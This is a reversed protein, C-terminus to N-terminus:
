LRRRIHPSPNTYGLGIHSQSFKEISSVRRSIKKESKRMRLVEDDVDEEKKEEEKEEDEKTPITVSPAEEDYNVDSIEKKNKDPSISGVKADGEFCIVLLEVFAASVYMLHASVMMQAIGPGFVDYHDEKHDCFHQMNSLVEWQFLIEILFVSVVFLFANSYKLLTLWHQIITLLLVSSLPRTLTWDNLSVACIVYCASFHHLTLGLANLYSTFAYPMHGLAIWDAGRTTYMLIEPFGMKFLGLVGLPLTTASKSLISVLCFIPFVFEALRFLRATDRNKLEEIWWLGIQHEIGLGTGWVTLTAIMNVAVDYWEDSLFYIPGSDTYSWSGRCSDDGCLTLFV